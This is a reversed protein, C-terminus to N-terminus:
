AARPRANLSATAAGRRSRWLLLPGTFRLGGIGRSSRRRGPPGPGGPVRLAVVRLPREVPRGGVPRRDLAPGARDTALSVLRVVHDQDDDHGQGRDADQHDVRRRRELAVQRLVGVRERGDSRLDLPRDEAEHRHRRHHPDVIAVQPEDRHRHVDDGDDQEHEDEHGDSLMSTPPEARQSLSGNSGATWGASNAM